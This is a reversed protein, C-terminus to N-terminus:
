HPRRQASFPGQVQRLGKPSVSSRSDSGATSGHSGVCGARGPSAGSGPFFGTSRDIRYGLAATAPQWAEPSLPNVLMNNPLGRRRMQSPGMWQSQQSASSTADDDQVYSSGQDAGHSTYGPQGLPAMLPAPPSDNTHQPPPNAFSPLYGGHTGQQDGGYQQKNPPLYGTYQAQQAYVSEQQDDGYQQGPPAILPAPPGDDTHQPTPNAFSPLYGGHTGQQDDGYQQVYAGYPQQYGTLQTQQAYVSEQSHDENQYPLYGGSQQHGSRDPGATAQITLRSADTTLANVNYGPQHTTSKGKDQKSRKSDHTGADPTNSKSSSARDHKSSRKSM